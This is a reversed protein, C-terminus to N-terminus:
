NGDPTMVEKFMKSLLHNDDRRGAEYINVNQNVTKHTTQGSIERTIKAPVVTEGAHLYAFGNTVITGGTDMAPILNAYSPLLGNSGNFIAQRFREWGSTSFSQANEAGSADRIALTNDNAAITNDLIADKLRQVEDDDGAAMAEQLLTQLKAGTTQLEASKEQLFSMSVSNPDVGNIRAAQQAIQLNKDIVSLNRSSTELTDGIKMERLNRVGEDQSTLNNLYDQYADKALASNEGFERVARQWLDHLSAESSRLDNLSNQAMSFRSQGGTGLLGASRSLSTALPNLTGELGFAGGAVIGRNQLQRFGETRGIQDKIESSANNFLEIATDIISGKLTRIQDTITDRLEPDTTNSLTANLENIQNTTNTLRSKLVTDIASFVGTQTGRRNALEMEANANDYRKNIDDIIKRQRELEAERASEQAQQQAVLNAAIAEDSEDRRDRINNRAAGLTNVRKRQKTIADSIKKRRDKDKKSTRNRLKILSSLEKTSAKYRKDISVFNSNIVEREKQLDKYQESTEEVNEQAERLPDDAFSDAVIGGPGRTYRSFINRVERVKTNKEIRNRVEDLLGGEATIASISKIIRDYYKEILTQANKSLRDKLTKREKSTGGLRMKILDDRDEKVASLVTTLSNNHAAPDLGYRKSQETTLQPNGLGLARSINPTGNNRPVKAAVERNSVGGFDKATGIVGQASNAYIASVMKQLSEIDAQNLILEGGHALILKRQGRAGPVVGGVDYGTGTPGFTDRDIGPLRGGKAMEYHLNTGTMYRTGYWAKIGQRDYIAKAALANRKPDFMAERGGFRKIIDDNFKTTIQWLGLGQTGGPDNGVANPNFGSEGKAIQAFTIGPLGVSEALKAVQNFTMIGSKELDREDGEFLSSGGGLAELNDGAKKVMKGMARKLMKAMRGKVKMEGLAKGVKRDYEERDFGAGGADLGEIGTPSANGKMAVHLHDFHGATQWLLEIVGNMKKLRNYLKDLAFKEGQPHNDANIDLALGKYHWSNKTHVPAVGGFRPHEGVMYGQKKLENGLGVIGGSAFGNHGASGAHLSNTGKFLGDLDFGYTKTLASDVYRQQDHNLIAEGRGVIAINDQGREGKMGLRGGVAYSGYSGSRFLRNYSDSGSDSTKERVTSELESEDELGLNKATNRYIRNLRQRTEDATKVQSDGADKTTRQMIRLNQRYANRGETSGKEISKGIRTYQQDVLEAMAKTGDAISIEGTKMGERIAKIAANFTKATEDINGETGKQYGQGIAALTRNTQKRIDTVDGAGTIGGRINEVRSALFDSNAGSERKQRRSAQLDKNAKEAAKAADREAKLQTIFPDLGKALAPNSKVLDQAEKLLTDLGVRDKAKRLRDFDKEARDVFSGIAKRQKMMEVPNDGVSGLIGKPGSRITDAFDRTSDRISGGLGTRGRPGYYERIQSLSEADDQTTVALTGGALATIGGLRAVKSLKGGSGAIRSLIGKKAPAGAAAMPKGDPGLVTSASAANAIASAEATGLIAAKIKNWGTAIAALREGKQASMVLGIATRATGAAGALMTFPKIFSLNILSIMVTRISSLSKTVLGLSILIAGLKYVADDGMFPILSILDSIGQAMKDIGTVVKGIIIASTVLGPILVKIMLNSFSQLTEVDFAKGFLRAVEILGTGIIRTGESANAFFESTKVRNNDMYDALKNINTALSEILSNGEELATSRFTAAFLHGVAVLLDKISDLSTGMREQTRNMADGDETADRLNSALDSTWDVMKRFIPSFEEAINLLSKFLDTFATGLIPLNRNAEGSFFELQSFTDKTFIGNFINKITSGMTESTSYFAAYLEENGLIETARDSISIFAETIPKSLRGATEEAASWLRDLSAYLQRETENMQDNLLYNLKGRAATIRGEAISASRAAKDVGQQAKGIAVSAGALAKQAALVEDRARKVNPLNELGGSRARNAAEKARRADIRSQSLDVDAGEVDVQARRQGFVDGSTMANRLKIQAEEQSIVAGQAALQAEREKNILEQLEDKAGRRADRLGEEAELLRKRAESARDQAAGLAENANAIGDVANAEKNALKEGNAYDQQRVLRSQQLAEFVNQMRYLAAGAGAALPIAQAMASSLAGGIAGAAGVAATGASVLAGGLSIMATALQQAFILGGFVILGRLSNDLRSVQNSSNGIENSLNLMKEAFTDGDRAADLLSRSTKRSSGGLGDVETRLKRVDAIADAVEAFDGIDFNDGGGIDVNKSYSNLESEIRKLGTSRVGQSMPNEMNSFYDKAALTQKLANEKEIASQTQIFRDTYYSRMQALEHNREEEARTRKLNAVDGLSELHRDEADIQAQLVEEARKIDEDAQKDKLIREEKAAADIEKQKEAALEDLVRNIEKGNERERKIRNNEIEKEANDYDISQQLKVEHAERELRNSLEAEEQATQRNRDSRKKEAAAFANDTSEKVRAEAAAQIEAAREAQVLKRQAEREDAIDQRKKEAQKAEWGRRRENIEAQAKTKIDALERTRRQREAAERGDAMENALAETGLMANQVQRENELRRNTYEQVKSILNDIKQSEERYSNADRSGIPSKNSLKDYEKSLRQLASIYNETAKIGPEGTKSRRAARDYNDQIRKEITLLEKRRAVLEGTSDAVKKNSEANKDAATTSKKLDGELGTLEGRVRALTESVNDKAEIILKILHDQNTM